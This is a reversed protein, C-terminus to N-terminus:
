RAANAIAIQAGLRANSRVLAINAELSRGETLEVIRGLLYPTINKGTIGQNTCDNLAQDIIADIEAHPIEDTTPIPNAV